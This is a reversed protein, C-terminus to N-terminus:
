RGNGSGPVFTLYPFRSTPFLVYYNNDIVRTQKKNKKLIQIDLQILNILSITMNEGVHLVTEKQKVLVIKEVNNVNEM